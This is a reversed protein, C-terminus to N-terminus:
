FSSYNICKKKKRKAYELTKYAGGWSHKVYTIIIDAENVMFENRKLIAFRQPVFELPPYLTYDYLNNDYKKNLYPIVLIIRIHPFEQKIINLVSVALYDFDGYGGLYFLSDEEKIILKKITSLLWAKVEEVESYIKSHGCFTILM